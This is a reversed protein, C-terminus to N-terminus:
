FPDIVGLEEEIDRRSRSQHSTDAKGGFPVHEANADIDAFHWFRVHIFERRSDEL